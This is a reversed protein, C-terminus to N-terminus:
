ARGPRPAPAAAQGFLVLLKGVIHEELGDDVLQHLLQGKGLGDLALQGLAVFQVTDLILAEGIEGASWAALRREATGDRFVRM